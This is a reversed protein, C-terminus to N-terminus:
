LEFTLYCCIFIGSIILNGKNTLILEIREEQCQPCHSISINQNSIFLEYISFYIQSSLSLKPLPTISISVKSSQSLLKRQSKDENENKRCEQPVLNCFKKFASISLLIQKEQTGIMLRSWGTEAQLNKGCKITVLCHTFIM